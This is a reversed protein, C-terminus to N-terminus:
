HTWTALKIPPGGIDTEWEMPNSLAESFPETYTERVYIANIDNDELMSLRSVMKQVIRQFNSTLLEVDTIDREFYIENKSQADEGQLLHEFYEIDEANTLSLARFLATEGHFRRVLDQEMERFREQWRVAMHLWCTNEYDLLEGWPVEFHKNLYECSQPCVELLIEIVFDVRSTVISHIDEAADASPPEDYDFDDTMTVAAEFNALDKGQLHSLIDIGFMDQIDTIMDNIRGKWALTIRHQYLEPQPPTGDGYDDWDSDHGGGAEVSSTIAATLTDCFHTVGLRKMSHKLIRTTQTVNIYNYMRNYLSTVNDSQNRHVTM